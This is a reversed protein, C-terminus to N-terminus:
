TIETYRVQVTDSFPGPTNLPLCCLPLHCRTMTEPFSLDWFFPTVHGHTWPPQPCQRVSSSCALRNQPPPFPPGLGSLSAISGPCCLMCPTAEQFLGPGSHALLFGFSTPSLSTVLAAPFSSFGSLFSPLGSFSSDLVCTLDKQYQTKLCTNPQGQTGDNWLIPVCVRHETPLVRCMQVPSCHFVFIFPINFGPV